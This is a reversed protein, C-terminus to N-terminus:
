VMKCQIKITNSFKQLPNQFFDSSFLVMFFEGAHLSNVIHSQNKILMIAPTENVSIQKM